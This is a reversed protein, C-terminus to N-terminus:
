PLAVAFGLRALHKALDRFVWPTSSNGHSIVIMPLNQGIPAAEMAVEIEYPGFRQTQESGEAPFLVALPITRNGVGSGEELGDRCEILRCGCIMGM